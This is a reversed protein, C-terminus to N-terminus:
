WQFYLLWYDQLTQEPVLAMTLGPARERRMKALALEVLTHPPTDPQLAAKYTTVDAVLVKDRACRNELANLGCKIAARCVEMPAHAYAFAQSPSSFQPTVARNPGSQTLLLVAVVLFNLAM